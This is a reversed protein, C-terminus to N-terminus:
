NLAEKSQTSETKIKDEVVYANRYFNDVTIAMTLSEASVNVVRIFKSDAGLLANVRKEVARTKDIDFTREACFKVTQIEFEKTVVNACEVEATVVKVKRTFVPIRM